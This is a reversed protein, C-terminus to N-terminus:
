RGAFIEEAILTAQLTQAGGVSGPSFGRAAYDAEFRRWQNELGITRIANREVMEHSIVDNVKASM